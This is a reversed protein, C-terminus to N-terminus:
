KEVSTLGTKQPSVNQSSSCQSTNKLNLSPYIKASFLNNLRLSHDVSYESTVPLVLRIRLM